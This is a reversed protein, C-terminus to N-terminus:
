PTGGSAEDARLLADEPGVTFVPSATYDGRESLDGVRSIESVRRRGTATREIQVIVDVASATQARLASLPFEADDMMAMTELRRLADEPTDAHATTMAGGHGSTMAQLLDLAEAGRVEGVIIRDPRLRLTARLLDRVTIRGRGRADPSRTELYVVHPKQLKVERTDEIVVIREDDRILASLANLLSTKGTGTGGSILINRKNSVCEFLYEAAEETLSSSRILMEITLPTHSFRRIAVIPGGEAIPDLVAEVRSGDPLHAELIPREPGFPRGVFQAINTLAAELAIKNKFRAKTKEIIGRREVWIQGPGNIMIEGVAPDNMLHEVPSLFLKLSDKFAQSAIM